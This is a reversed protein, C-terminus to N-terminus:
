GAEDRKGRGGEREDQRREEEGTERENQRREGKGGKGRVWKEEKRSRM